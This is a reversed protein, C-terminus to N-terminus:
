TTAHGSPRGAPRLATREAAEAAPEPERAVVRVGDQWVERVNGPLRDLDLADGDVVVLDARFGAAVRGLEQEYGLLRAASSTTAALVDASAPHSGTGDFVLGGAFLTRRAPSGNPGTM